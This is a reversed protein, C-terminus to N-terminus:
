PIRFVIHSDNVLMKPCHPSCTTSALLQATPVYAPPSLMQFKPETSPLNPLLAGEIM